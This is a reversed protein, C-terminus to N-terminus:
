RSNMCSASSRHPENLLLGSTKFIIRCSTYHNSQYSSYPANRRWEVSCTSTSWCLKFHTLWFHFSEVLLSIILGFTFRNLWFHISEGWWRTTEIHWRAIDASIFWARIRVSKLGTPPPRYVSLNSEREFKQLQVISPLAVLIKFRCNYCQRQINDRLNLINHKTM